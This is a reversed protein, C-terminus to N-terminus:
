LHEGATPHCLYDPWHQFSVHAVTWSHHIEHWSATSQKWSWYRNWSSSLASWCPDARSQLGQCMEAQSEPPEKGKTRMAMSYGASQLPLEWSDWPWMTTSLIAGNTCWVGSPGETGAPLEYLRNCPALATSSQAPMMHGYPFQGEAQGECCCKRKTLM